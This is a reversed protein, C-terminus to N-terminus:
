RPYSLLVLARFASFAHPMDEATYTLKRDDRIVGPLLMARDAMDSSQLEVIVKIPTGLIFPSISEGKLRKEVSRKASQEILPQTIGASLCEASYRGTGQKVVVTQLPGLQEEIQLCAAQDGTAM